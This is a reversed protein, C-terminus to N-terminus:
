PKWSCVFKLPASATAGSAIFDWESARNLTVLVSGNAMPGSHATLSLLRRREAKCDYEVWIRRSLAATSDGAKLDQLEWVRRIDGNVQITDVDVYFAIEGVKVWGAWAPSGILTLLFCVILRM